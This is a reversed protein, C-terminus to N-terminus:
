RRLKGCSKRSSAGERNSGVCMAQEWEQRWDGRCHGLCRFGMMGAGCLPCVLSRIASILSSNNYTIGTLSAM